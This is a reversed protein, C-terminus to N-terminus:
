GLIKKMLEATYNVMPIIRGYNMRTPGIVGLVGIVQKKENQYPAVVMSSGSLSFLKNESGIFIRVGEAKEAMGLLQIIEKKDELDQFLHKIRDLDENAEINSILNSAGKVILIKDEKKYNSSTWTALGQTLLTATERDLENKKESLDVEIRKIAENLTFGRMHHNLYNGAAALSSATLGESNDIIRNEVNGDEDVLIVLVKTKDLLVFEIHKIYKADKNVSVVGTYNTLGSLMESAKALADEISMNNAMAQQKIVAQDVDTLSGIELMADVFLRLGGETPIRGASIHPSYILELSELDHMVNRISAASLDFQDMQSITRSGIPSGTNLYEEVIKKFIIRSRDDLDLLNLKRDVM